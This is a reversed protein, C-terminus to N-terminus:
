GLSTCLVLCSRYSGPREKIRIATRAVMIRHTLRQPANGEVKPLRIGSAPNRPIAGDQVAYDFVRRLVGLSHRATGASQTRALDACWARVESPRVSIAPRRGFAKAIRKNIAERINRETAPARPPQASLWAECWDQVPREAAGPTPGYVLVCGMLRVVNGSRLMESGRSTRSGVYRGRHYVRARCVRAGDRGTRAEIV